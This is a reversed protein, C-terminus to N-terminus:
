FIKICISADHGVLVTCRHRLDSGHVVLEAAARHANSHAVYEALVTELQRRNLILVHPYFHLTSRHLVGHRHRRRTTM